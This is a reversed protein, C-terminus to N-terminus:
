AATHSTTRGYRAAETSFLRDLWPFATFAIAGAALLGTLLRMWWNFTGLHDGAYFGPLVNATLMALWANTDRFGGGGVGYVLNNLLQTTGDLALPVLLMVFWRWPLPRRGYGLRRLVAYALGFFPMMTYFSLMRDSWAVKWGMAPSGYFLRLQWSGSAESVQQIEALTYTLREGFLFWSRQPLQHCFPMYLTYIARGIAEWGLWMAVPALFPLLTFVFLATLVIPLWHVLVFLVAQDAAIAAKSRSVPSSSMERASEVFRSQEFM